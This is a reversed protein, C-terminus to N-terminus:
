GRNSGGDNNNGRKVCLPLNKPCSFQYPIMDPVCGFNGAEYHPRIDAWNVPHGSKMLQTLRDLFGADTADLMDMGFTFRYDEGDDAM